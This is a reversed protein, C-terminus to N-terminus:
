SKKNVLGFKHLILKRNTYFEYMKKTFDWKTIDKRECHMEVENM